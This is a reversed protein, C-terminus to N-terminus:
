TRVSKAGVFRALRELPEQLPVEQKGDEWWVAQVELIGTKRDFVPDIRGVLDDGHLIPLVFYGYKRKEKPVYIEIKFDFNWLDSNRKRNRILPDFPSLFTTFGRRQPPVELMDRHVFREEKLGDVEVSVLTRDRVLSNFAPEPGPWPGGGFFERRIENATAVGLNRASREMVRRDAQSDSLRHSDQPLWHQGLDWIRQQGSRGAVVVEGKAHMLELMRSVNRNNTWGTSRWSRKAIDELDRGATPGNKRLQAKISRRLAANERMWKHVRAPWTGGYADPFRRMHTKHIPHESTAMIAAAYEYLERTEWRLRELEGEDFSGIRSWLVLLHNRAISNTPDLQLYGVHKVVDLISTGKRAPLLQGAVARRRAQPITLKLAAV